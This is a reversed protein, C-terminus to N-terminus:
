GSKKSTFRARAKFLREDDHAKCCVANIDDPPESKRQRAGTLYHVGFEEALKQIDARRGDDCLYVNVLEKPYDLNLCGSVTKKLVHREENYTAILIDVTPRHDKDQLPVPSRKKEKWVLTYFIVLQFFGICETALLIVGM